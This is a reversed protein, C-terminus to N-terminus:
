DLKEAKVLNKLDELMNQGAKTIKDRYLILCPMNKDIARGKFSRVDDDNLTKKTKAAALYEVAGLESRIRIVGLFETKTEEITEILPIARRKLFSLVEETLENKPLEAREPEEDPVFPSDFKDNNNEDSKDDFDESAIPTDDEESEEEIKDEELANSLEPKESAEEVETSVRQLNEKLNSSHSESEEKNLEKTEKPPTYTGEIMRLIDEKPFFNYRWMVQEKYQFPTAFDKISRLAVRMAPEQESDILFKKNKLELYAKKVVGNFHEDAFPELMEEQGSLYYIQSSGIRLNSTRIKHSATLEGLIASTFVLEKDIAKAVKIPLAPGNEKIFKIIQAKLEDVNIM